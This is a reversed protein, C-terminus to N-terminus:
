RKECVKCFLLIISSVLLNLCVSKRGSWFAEPACNEIDWRFCLVWSGSFFFDRQTFSPFDIVHTYVQCSVCMSTYRTHIDKFLNEHAIIRSYEFICKKKKPTCLTSYIRIGHPFIFQSSHLIFFSVSKNADAPCSLIFTAIYIRADEACIAYVCRDLNVDITNNHIM